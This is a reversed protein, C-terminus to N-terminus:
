IKKDQYGSWGPFIQSFTVNEPSITLVVINNMSTVYGVKKVIKGNLTVEVSGEGTEQVVFDVSGLRSITGEFSKGSPFKVSVEVEEESHNVVHFHGELLTLEDYFGRASWALLGMVLGTFILFIKNKFPPM